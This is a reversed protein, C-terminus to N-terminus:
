KKDIEITKNIKKGMELSINIAKIFDEETKKPTAKVLDLEEQETVFHAFFEEDQATNVIIRKIKMYGVKFHVSSWKSSYVVIKDIHQHLLHNLKIRENESELDLKNITHLEETSGQNLANNIQSLKTNADILEKNKHSRLSMLDKIDEKSGAEAIAFGLNTVAKEINKIKAELAARQTITNLTTQESQLNSYDLISLANLLKDRVPVMHISKRDCKKHHSNGTCSYYIRYVKGKTYSIKQTMAYGCKSCKLLGSLVNNFKRSAMGKATQDFSAQTANFVEESILKPFYDQIPDGNNTSVRKGDIVTRHQPQWEGILRRNKLLRTISDTRLARGGLILNDEEKLKTMIKNAGMGSLKMSFIRKILKEDKPKIIFKSKNESLELWRPISKGSFIKKNNKRAEEVNKQKAAFIRKSKQESEMYALHFGVTLLLDGALDLKNDTKDIVIGWRVIAVKVGYNLIRRFLERADDPPLRSLRDILEVCLMDGAKVIGRDCDNLFNALGADDKINMGHFGSAKDTYVKDSLRHQPHQKLFERITELQRSLGTKGDQDQQTTSVRTYAYATTM